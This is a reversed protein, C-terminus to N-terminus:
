TIGIEIDRRCKHPWKYPLSAPPLYQPVPITLPVIRDVSTAGIMEWNAASQTCDMISSQGVASRDAVTLEAFVLSARVRYIRRGPSLNSPSTPQRPQMVQMLYRSPTPPHSLPLSSSPTYRPQSANIDWSSFRAPLLIPSRAFQSRCRLDKTSARSWSPNIPHGNKLQAGAGSEFNTSSRGIDRDRWKRRGRRVRKKEKRHSPIKTALYEQRTEAIRYDSPSPPLSATDHINQIYPLYNPYFHMPEYPNSTFWPSSLALPSRLVHQQSLRVNCDKKSPRM